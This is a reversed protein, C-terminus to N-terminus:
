IVWAIDKYKDISKDLLNTATPKVPGYVIVLGKSYKPDYSTSHQVPYDAYYFSNSDNPLIMDRTENNYHFKWMTDPYTNWLVSRFEYINPTPFDSHPETHTYNEVVRIITPNFICHEKIQKVLDLVVPVQPALRAEYSYFKKFADDVIYLDFGKWPPVKHFYNHNNKTKTVPGAHNNWVDWWEDWNNPEIKPIDLPTYIIM